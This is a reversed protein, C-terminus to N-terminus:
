GTSSWTNGCAPTRSDPARGSTVTSARAYAIWATLADPETPLKQLQAFSVEPRGAQVLDAPGGRGGQWGDERGTVWTRGDTSTWSERM